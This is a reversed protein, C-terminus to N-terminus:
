RIVLDQELAEPRQTKGLAAKIPLGPGKKHPLHKGQERAFSPNGKSSVRPHELREASAGSRIGPQSWSVPHSAM